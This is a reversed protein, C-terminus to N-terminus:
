FNKLRAKMRENKWALYKEYKEQGLCSLTLAYCTPENSKNLQDSYIPMRSLSPLASSAQASTMVVLTSFYFLVMALTKRM